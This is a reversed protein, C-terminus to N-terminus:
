ALGEATSLDCRVFNAVPEKEVVSELIAAGALAIFYIVSRCFVMAGTCLATGSTAVGAGTERAQIRDM